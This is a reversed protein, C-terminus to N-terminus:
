SLAQNYIQELIMSIRKRINAVQMTGQTICDKFEQNSLLALKRAALDVGDYIYGNKLAISTGIMLSDFVTPYLRKRYKSNDKQLNFFSEEHFHERVFSITRSFDEACEDLFEPSAKVHEGM